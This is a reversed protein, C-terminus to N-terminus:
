VHFCSLFARTYRITSSALPVTVRDVAVLDAFLNHGSPEVTCLDGSVGGRLTLKCNIQFKQLYCM